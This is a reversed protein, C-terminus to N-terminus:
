ENKWNNWAIQRRTDPVHKAVVGQLPSSTNVDTLEAMKARVAAVRKEVSPSDGSKSAVFAGAKASVAAVLVVVSAGLVVVSAGLIRAVLTRAPFRM